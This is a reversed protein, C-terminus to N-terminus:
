PSTHHIHNGHGGVRCLSLTPLSSMLDFAHIYVGYLGHDCLAPLSCRLADYITLRCGSQHHIHPEDHCSRFLYRKAVCHLLSTGFSSSSTFPQIFHTSSFHVKLFFSLLCHPPHSLFPPMFPGRPVNHHLLRSSVSPFCWPYGYPFPVFSFLVLELSLPQSMLLRALDKAHSPPTTLVYNLGRRRRDQSHPHANGNQSGNYSFDLAATTLRGRGIGCLGRIPSPNASRSTM